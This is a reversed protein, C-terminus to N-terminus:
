KGECCCCKEDNEKTKCIDMLFYTLDCITEKNLTYYCWKGEKKCTTFNELCLVKMHHSLTGQTINLEELIKCACKTGNDSLYQIIKLRTEDSILKIRKLFADNTM